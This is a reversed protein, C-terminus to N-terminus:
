MIGMQAIYLASHESGSHAGHLVSISKKKPEDPSYCLLFYLLVRLLTDGTRDRSIHCVTLTM